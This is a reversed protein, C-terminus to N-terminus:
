NRYEKCVGVRTLSESKRRIKLGTGCHSIRIPIIGSVYMVVCNLSTTYLVNYIKNEGFQTM